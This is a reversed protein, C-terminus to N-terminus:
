TQPLVGTVKERMSGTLDLLLEKDYREMWTKSSSKDYRGDHRTRIRQVTRRDVGINKNIWTAAKEPRFMAYERLLLDVAAVEVQNYKPPRGGKNPEKFVGLAIDLPIGDNLFLRLNKALESFLASDFRKTEIRSAIIHLMERAAKDDGLDARLSVEQEFWNEIENMDALTRQPINQDLFLLIYHIELEDPVSLNRRITKKFLTGENALAKPNLLM